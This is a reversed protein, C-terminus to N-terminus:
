ATRGLSSLGRTLGMGLSSGPGDPLLAAQRGPGLPVVPAWTSAPGRGWYSVRRPWLCLAAPRGPLRPGPRQSVPGAPLGLAPGAEEAEAFLLWAEGM